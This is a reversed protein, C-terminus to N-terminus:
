WLTNFFGTLRKFSKSTCELVSFKQYQLVFLNLISFYTESWGEGGGGLSVCCYHSVKREERLIEQRRAAPLPKCSLRPCTYGTKGSKHITNKIRTTPLNSGPGTRRHIKRQQHSKQAGFRTQLDSFWGVTLSTTISAQSWLHFDCRISIWLSAEPNESSKEFSPSAFDLIERNVFM